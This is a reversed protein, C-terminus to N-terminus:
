PHQPSWLSGSTAPYSASSPRRTSAKGGAIIVPDHAQGYRHIRGMRQELRAPNWSVDYNLMIWCFQLNIGEGAADTCILFRAGGANNSKRFREVQEERETYHMGGHIQAIQGPYKIQEPYDDGPSQDM